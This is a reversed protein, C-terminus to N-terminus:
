PSERETERKPTEVLCHLTSSVEKRSHRGEKEKKETKREELEVTMQLTVFFLTFSLKLGVKNILGVWTNNKENKTIWNCEAATGM